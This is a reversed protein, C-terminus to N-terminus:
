NAHSQSGFTLVFVCVTHLWDLQFLSIEADFEIKSQSRFPDFSFLTISLAAPMKCWVSINKHSVYLTTHFTLPSLDLLQWRFTGFFMFFRVCIQCLILVFDFLLFCTYKQTYRYFTPNHICAIYTSAPMAFQTPKSRLLKTYPFM